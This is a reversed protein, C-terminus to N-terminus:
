TVLSLPEPFTIGLFLVVNPHSRLGKLFEIERMFENLISVTVDASKIQKVAVNMGRWDAKFVVGFAGSGIERLNQIENFDIVSNKADGLVVQSFDIMSFSNKKRLIRQRRLRLLLLVFALIVLILLVAGGIAAGIIVPLGVRTTNDVVLIRDSTSSTVLECKVKGEQQKTAGKGDECQIFSLDDTTDNLILVSRDSLFLGRGGFSDNEVYITGQPLYVDNGKSNAKNNSFVDNKSETSDVSLYVSGGISTATNYEFLNSSMQFNHAEQRKGDSNRQVMMAGGDVANNRSFYCSEVKHSQSNSPLLLYFGGGTTARNNTFNNSQIASTKVGSAFIGGGLESAVNRDITNNLFLVSDVSSSAIHIGGGKEGSNGFIRTNEVRFFLIKSKSNISIGGGQSSVNNFNLQSDMLTFNDSSVSLYIGAGDIEAQNGEILAMRLVISAYKGNLFMGGGSGGADQTAINKLFQCSQLSVSSGKESNMSNIYLAGAQPAKNETFECNNLSVAVNGQMNIAGGYLSNAINSFFVSGEGYLTTNGEISFAGGQQAENSDGRFGSIRITKVGELQMGGGTSLAYNSGFHSDTISLQDVSVLHMGGGKINGRNNNIECLNMSLDMGKSNIYIGGGFSSISSSVSTEDLEFRQFIGEVHIAGGYLISSGGEIVTKEIRLKKVTGISSIAGGQVKASCNRIESGSITANDVFGEFHFAGGQFDASCNLIKGKFIMEQNLGFGGTAFVAGGSVASSGVISWKDMNIPNNEVAVCGGYLAKTGFTSINTAEIRGLGTSFLFGGYNLASTQYATVNKLILYSSPSEQSNFAIGGGIGSQEGQFRADQLTASSYGEISIGGGNVDSDNDRFEVRSIKMSSRDQIRIAGGTGSAKNSTFISSYLTANSKGELQICGGGSGAQNFLCTIKEMTINSSIVLIGGGTLTAFNSEFTVNNIVSQTFSTIAIAGGYKASNNVFLGESIDIVGAIIAGGYESASNQNWVSDRSYVSGFIAGSLQASGLSFNCRHIWIKIEDDVFSAASIHGGVLATNSEFRTDNIFLSDVFCIAGGSAPATNRTLRSSSITIDISFIAGGNTATNRDFTCNWVFVSLAVNIAGGRDGTNGIFVSDFVEVRHQSNVASLFCKTFNSQYITLHSTADGLIGFNQFSCNNFTINSNVFTSPSTTRFKSDSVKGPCLQTVLPVDLVVNQMWFYKCQLLQFSFLSSNTTVGSISIYKSNFLTNIFKQPYFSLGEMRISNFKILAFSDSVNQIVGIGRLTVNSDERGSIIYTAVPNVYSVDMVILSDFCSTSNISAFARNLNGGYDSLRTMCDFSFTSTIFFLLFFSLFIKM